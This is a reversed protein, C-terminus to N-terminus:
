SRAGPEDRSCPGPFLAAMQRRITSRTWARQRAGTHILMRASLGETLALTAYAEQAAETGPLVEGCIRGNQLAQVIRATLSQDFRRQETRLQDDELAQGLFAHRLLAEDRRQDNLPLLQELGATIMQEIRASRREARAVAANIRAEIDNHVTAITDILLEEKTRYYHQVLGVSVGAAAAAGAITV